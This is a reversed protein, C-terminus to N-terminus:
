EVVEKKFVLLEEELQKNAKKEKSVRLESKELKSESEQLWAESDTIVKALKDKETATNEVQGVLDNKEWQLDKYCEFMEDGDLRTYLLKAFVWGVKSSLQHNSKVAEIFAVTANAVKPSEM